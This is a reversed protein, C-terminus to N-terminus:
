KTIVLDKVHIEHPAPKDLIKVKSFDEQVDEIRGEGLKVTDFGLSKGTVPHKLEKGRRYVIIATYKRIKAKSGLDSFVVGHDKNIVMGEVLPFGAAIKAALGDMLEKVSSISKDETFVDKVEMVESTETNIVRSVIEISKPDEKVSTAVIANASMLKGIRISHEPDALKAKTLKQEQLVQELKAREVVNFRKQEVFSGILLDYALLAYDPKKQRSEFPLVTFSMRAGVQMVSPIERRVLVEATTRNGSADFAEVNIRNSGPNLKIMKNFFVKKGKGSSIEKGNIKITEVKKNDYAEGEVFYRDIFVVQAEGAERLKLSPREKDFSLIGPANFALLVPDPLKQFAALEKKLDIVAATDNDLIDFAQILLSGGIKKREISIDFAYNKEGKVPLEQDGVMVKRIGTADSVTGSIRVLKQGDKEEGRIDSLTIGPGERDVSLVLNKESRNGLLDECVVTIRNEADSLQIEKEFDIEERALEFRYPEGNVVVRSVLGEGAVKGRVKVTMGKVTSNEEPSEVRIVPPLITGGTSNLIQSKRARNLYFIAKASEEDRVSRELENVAENIDGTTLYAIGLERHPFYDIFHMGYTRAMRQDKERMSITKKLDAIAKEWEGTEASGLARGYYNWWKGRFTGSDDGALGWSAACFILLGAILIIASIKKM